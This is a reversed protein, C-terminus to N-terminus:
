LDPQSQLHYAQRDLYDPHLHTTQSLVQSFAEVPLKGYRPWKQDVLRINCSFNLQDVEETYNTWLNDFGSIRLASLPLSKSEGLFVSAVGKLPDDFFLRAFLILRWVSHCVSSFTEWSLGRNFAVVRFLYFLSFHRFIILRCLFTWNGVDRRWFLSWVFNNSIFISWLLGAWALQETFM